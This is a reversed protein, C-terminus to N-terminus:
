EKKTIACLCVSLMGLAYISVVLNRYTFWSHISAHESTAFLWVIPVVAVLLFNLLCKRKENTRYKYYNWILLVIMFLILVTLVVGYVSEWLVAFNNGVSRVRQLLASEEVRMGSRTKVTQLANLIVNEGGIISALVWKASWMGGYGLGWFIMSLISNRGMSSQKEECICLAMYTALPIGLTIIPYTLLDMYSTVIGVVFFYLFVNYGAKWFESRKLLVILAILTVYFMNAMDLCLLLTIPMLFVFAAVFVATAGKPLKKGILSAVYAVLLSLVVINLIRLDSYSFLLLLPKLIVLYGHWYRAYDEGYCDENRLYAQLSETPLMDPSVMAYCNQMAEVLVSTHNDFIAISLMIRDTFNDLTSSSYGNILTPWDGEGHLEAASKQVNIKMPETPLLYVLVMLLFGILVSGMGVFIIKKIFSGMDGIKKM